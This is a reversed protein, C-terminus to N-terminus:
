IMNVLIWQRNTVFILVTRLFNLHCPPPAWSLNGRLRDQQTALLAPRWWAIPLSFSMTFRNWIWVRSKFSSSAVCLSWSFNFNFEGGHGLLFRQLNHLCGSVCHQSILAGLFQCPPFEAFPFLNGGQLADGRGDAQFLPLDKTVATHVGWACQIKNQLLHGRRPKMILDWFDKNITTPAVHKM